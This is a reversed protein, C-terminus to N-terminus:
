TSTSGRDVAASFCVYAVRGDLLCQILASMNSAAVNADVVGTRVAAAPRKLLKMNTASM